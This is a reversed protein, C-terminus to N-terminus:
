KSLEGQSDAARTAAVSRASIASARNIELKVVRTCQGTIPLNVGVARGIITVQSKASAAARVGVFIAQADTESAGEIWVELPTASERSQVLFKQISEAPNSARDVINAPDVVGTLMVM